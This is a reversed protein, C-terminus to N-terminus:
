NRSFGPSAQKPLIPTAAWERLSAVVASRLALALLAHRRPRSAKRNDIAIGVLLATASDDDIGAATWDPRPGWCGLSPNTADTAPLGYSLRAANVLQECLVSWLRFADQRSVTPQLDRLTLVEGDERLAWTHVVDVEPGYDGYQGVTSVQVTLKHRGLTVQETLAAEGKLSEAGLDFPNEM